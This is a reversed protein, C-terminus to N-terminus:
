KIYGTERLYTTAVDAPKEKDLDVRSNLEQMVETTLGAQVAEATKQFDPGAADVVEQRAILSANYPPFLKKDDELLQENNAKIAGDTTFVLSV